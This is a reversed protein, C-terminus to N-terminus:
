TPEYCSRLTNRCDHRGVPEDDPGDGKSTMLCWFITSDYDAEDASDDEAQDTYVYMGKSRLHRCPPGPPTAAPSESSDSSSM